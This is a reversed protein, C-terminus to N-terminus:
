ATIIHGRRSRPWVFLAGRFGAPRFAILGYQSSAYSNQSQYFGMLIKAVEPRAFEDSKVGGAQSPRIISRFFLAGFIPAQCRNATELSVATM